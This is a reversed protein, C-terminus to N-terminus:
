AALGVLGGPPQRSILRDRSSTVRGREADQIRFGLGWGRGMLKLLFYAPCHSRGGSGLIAEGPAFCLHASNGPSPLRIGCLFQKSTSGSAMGSRCSAMLPLPPPPRTARAAPPRPRGSATPRTQRCRAQRPHPPSSTPASTTSRATRAPSWRCCGLVRTIPAVWALLPRCAVVNYETPIQNVRKGILM